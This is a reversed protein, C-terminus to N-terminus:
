KLLDLIKVVIKAVEARTINANPRFTNDSYGGVIDKIEAFAVYKSFWSDSPVDPFGSSGSGIDLGSAELLIKLAAARTIPENPHFGDSFGTVINLDKAKAIYAAYWEGKPVDDFPNADPEGGVTHGFANLAMKTLEARTINANPDFSDESKGNAIGKEYVQDIYTEAWHGAIDTFPIINTESKVESVIPVEIVAQTSPGINGAADEAYVNIRNTKNSVLPVEVSFIGNSNASSSGVRVGDPTVAYINANAECSGTITYKTAAVFSEIQDLEPAEPPTVDGKKDTTAAVKGTEKITVTISSSFDSGKQSSISFVNTAEQALGVTVKVTGDLKDTGAGDTVPAIDSPGGVVSVTAGSAVKITFTYTNANIQSPAAPSVVPTALSAFAGIPLVFLGLLTLIMNKIKM